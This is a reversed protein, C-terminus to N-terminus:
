SVVEQPRRLLQVSLLGMKAHMFERQTTLSYDSSYCNWTHVSDGLTRTVVFENLDFADKLVQLKSQFDSPSSGYVYVNLQETVNERLANVIYTGELFPSTAEQRKKSTAQQAFSGAEIRYSVRDNLEIFTVPDTYVKVSLDLLAETM